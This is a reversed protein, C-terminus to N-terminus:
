YVAGFARVSPARLSHAQARIRQMAGVVESPQASYAFGLKTTWDIDASLRQLLDPDQALAENVVKLAVSRGLRTDRARYVEAMGGTGLISLVEYPGLRSGPTLRM